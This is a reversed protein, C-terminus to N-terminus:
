VSAVADQGSYRKYEGFRLPDPQRLVRLAHGNHADWIRITEDDSASAICRGDPSFCVSQISREHGRLVALEEGSEADWVRVTNDESGSAFRRGDPSYSVST